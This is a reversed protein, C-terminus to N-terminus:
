SFELGRRHTAAEQEPVNLVKAFIDSGLGLEGVQAVAVEELLVVLELVDVTRVLLREEPQFILVAIEARREENFGLDAVFECGLREPQRSRVAIQETLREKVSKRVVGPRTRRVGPEVGEALRGALERETHVVSERRGLERDLRSPEVPHLPDTRRK